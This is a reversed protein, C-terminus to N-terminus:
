IIGCIGKERLPEFYVYKNTLESKVLYNRIKKM